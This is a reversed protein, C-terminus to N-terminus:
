EAVVARVVETLARVSPRVASGAARVLVVRRTVEQTLGIRDIHVRNNLEVMLDTVFTAGLGAGALALSVATDTIEHRVRPEFGADRCAARVALGFQTDPAPMIWDWGAAAGLDMVAAPSTGGAVALGFRETRLTVTEVDATRPMPHHPYEVGFAADVQGRQVAAVADDVDLERSRLDLLPYRRRAEAVIPALLVGATSGFVGLAAPAAADNEVARVADRAAREDRLITEAHAALVVGADTLIVNRGSRGILATGVCRELASIQQSVAGPTYGLEDAVAIMTGKRALHLLTNLHTLSMAAM